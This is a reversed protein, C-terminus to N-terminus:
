ENEISRAISTFFFFSFGASSGITTAIFAIALALPAAIFDETWDIEAIPITDIPADAFGSDTMTFDM